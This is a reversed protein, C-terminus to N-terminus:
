RLNKTHGALYVRWMFPPITLIKRFSTPRMLTRWLWELGIKRLWTPARKVEGGMQDFDFTGGEGILVKALGDDVHRAMFLEQKPHAMAVFLIDLKAAKVSRVISPEQKDTFYGSWTGGIQLLPYRDKLQNEVSGEKPGGLVGIRWGRQAAHILLRHTVDVGAGREPIVQALWESRQMGFVISKMWSLLSHQRQAYLYASAWQVSIGDAIVLDADNIARRVAMDHRATAFFAVYPKVYRMSKRVSRGQVAREIRSLVEAENLPDFALDLIQIRSRKSANAKM